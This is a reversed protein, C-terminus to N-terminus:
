WTGQEKSKELIEPASATVEQPKILSLEEVSLQLPGEIIETSLVVDDTLSEKVYKLHTSTESISETGEETIEEFATKTHPFEEVDLVVEDTGTEEVSPIELELSLIEKEELEHKEIITTEEETEPQIDYETEEKSVETPIIFIDMKEKHKDDKQIPIKFEVKEKDTEKRVPVTEKVDLKEKQLTIDTETGKLKEMEPLQFDEELKIEESITTKLHENETIEMETVPIEELSSEVTVTLDTKPVRIKVDIQLSDASTVSPKEHEKILNIVKETSPVKEQDIIIEKSTEKEWIDEKELITLETREKPLDLDIIATEKHEEKEAVILEKDHTPMGIDIDVKVAKTDEKHPVSLDMDSKYINEHPQLILDKESKVPIEDETAPVEKLGEKRLETQNEVTAELPTMEKLTIESPVEEKPLQTEEEVAVESPVVKMAIQTETEIAFSVESPMEKKPLQMKVETTVKSPVDEKTLQTDVDFAAEFPIEEKPLEEKVDVTIELPMEEKSIPTKSDVTIELPINEKPMQGEEVSVDFPVAQKRLETDIDVGIESTKEEKAMETDIEVPKEFPMNAKIKSPIKLEPLETVIPVEASVKEMKAEEITIESTVQKPLLEESTIKSPLKAIIEPKREDSPVQEKFLEQEDLSVDFLEEKEKILTQEHLVIEENEILLKDKAPKSVDVEVSSLFQLKEKEEVEIDTDVFDFQDEIHKPVNENVETSVSLENEEITSDKEKELLDLIQKDESKVEKEITEEGLVKILDKLSEKEETVDKAPVYISEEKLEVSEALVTEEEAEHPYEIFYEQDESKVQEKIPIIREKEYSREEETVVKPQEPSKEHIDIEIVEYSSELAFDEQLPIFRPADVLDSTVQIDKKPRIDKENLKIEIDIMGPKEEIEIEESYSVGADEKDETIITITGRRKQPIEIIEEESEDEEPYKVGYGEEELSEESFDSEESESEIEEDKKVFVETWDERPVVLIEEEVLTETLCESVIEEIGMVDPQLEKPIYKAEEDVITEETVLDTMEEAAWFKDAEKKSPTEPIEKLKDVLEVENAQLITQQPVAQELPSEEQTDKQIEQPFEDGEEPPMEVHHLLEDLQPKIEIDVAQVEPKPTEKVTLEEGSEKALDTSVEEILQTAGRADVSERYSTETVGLDFPILETRKEKIEITDRFLAIIEPVPAAIDFEPSTLDPKELETEIIQMEEKITDEAQQPLEKEEVLIEVSEPLKEAETLTEIDLEEMSVVTIQPALIVTPHEEPIQKSDPSGEVLETAGRIDFAEKYVAELTDIEPRIEGLEITDRYLTIVEPVPAALCSEEPLEPYEEFTFTSVEKYDIVDTTEKEHVTVSFTPSEPTEDLDIKEHLSVKEREETSEPIEPHEEKIEEPIVIGEAMPIIELELEEQYKKTDLDKPLIDLETKGLTKGPIDLDKEKPEIQIKASEVITRPIEKPEIQLDVKEILKDPIEVSKDKEEDEIQVDLKTKEPTDVVKTKTGIDIKLKGDSSVLDATEASEIKITEEFISEVAPQQKIDITEDIDIKEHVSVESKEPIEPLEPYEEFTFTSVEKDDIVDAKEKERVTVSFTPSEPTEDLDIKEHLSVKEREETSEPIEPHEEKIKEPIEIGEETPIIEFELKEQCKGSDLDKPLIDLETKGSTKALIDLDKVKPEIQIKASEVITRPVEKPERQLDVKEILKDPIEVNKDKEEDEIPVELKTKEPTDVVKTKTDIDIKLKGDSSVLDTTEVSEIKMTEEFVSEVAPQQKIDTTEEIDIKEHVTVESKEPIEPLEPYEEFTFTSVEKDDIVDTTEKERVTVSFTPSEPTEDLDIKEHLSVKEREETSEPIEPHEEVTVTSKEHDDIVDYTEKELVSVSFAPSEPTEEIGIKEHQPFKEKEERTVPIDIDRDEPIIDLELQENYKGTDMENPSIEIEDKEIIKEPIESDEDKPIIELELKERYKETDMDKPLNKIETKQSTKELIDLDKEKPEIQIEASETITRTVDKPEIHLDVKETPKKTIEENKDKEIDAIHVELKTKEPADLIKEKTETDIKLQDDKTKESVKKDSEPIEVDSQEIRPRVVLSLQEEPVEMADQIEGLVERAEGTDVSEKIVTETLSIKPMGDEMEFTGKYLTIVEPVPAALDYEQTVLDTIKASEIEMREESISEVPPQQKVDTTEEIDIKEHVSVESKEPIEPLEPYEECSFTSVEKDDIVDTTEKERVTISFTPSEPTQDLDIKEHLSVKEREKTSEPIEPHEVKIEEPIVIGEAMPIIGLELEEQYKKTDLDKPLIELETKGSTKAPIDLDKEKPEIQIEASEVTTRPIEKPEIQLDVKEILKDPIEVRKVKEEDVIEVDLKTKEPTDVVKTKTDIDTKLKDDSSVLDTTKASEIDLTEESISEVPPQQVDTTEELDIKEHVSVETKEPIEPLEPYEEFTFTSVEKDDIVDTTEKERVTVSFTPSEPTEDLDIKEHLSVKEREETSEPIEPHEEKVKKPIEIGKETPIIEFELKEQYKETDLDKPLIEIETKRSTKESIDLDKEKPEIQIEASEAITRTVEKSEIHLDVKETPKKPIEESKDKEIDAIHVELKTKEPADVVEAKTETDIKLQDDKTKKPAKEESKPIEVDSQEIDPRVVFSLQEEPVEMADQVEGLVERAEGTHVAKKFVTETQSIKPIGEEMEFTDKYLIIVEPVPAALDYEQTVLDTIKASEIEIPEKSISEVLPQQQADTREEIDIKEHVSVESKEPIEPLEPYEEFTFTSVEEDDIVDTTEKERVTVSFVPSEPTEDLDIKEHLSVKEREETSKPIEPHEEKVKKPIEIGEETPIIEFELKEQYKETDLDKPLIEIETIRSNKESIDLDMEKSEIQIEASEAITRTVEKREIHLDVKETPKKPIDESKDKEIDAIHVELKTKAPADVVKSKKETDIKLQDDKTKEPVKEESKPIEVDSQETHPRVVFSLQEEPVEMADQVEGLVERAEGTDVPEKFVTETQSIKPIGEEKEFTDKYLTIVEPVPAALDHEQTVLDTIEASEIEIPEESISEVPQQQQVDTTEEIDIKEHVSVESKEPIEPLEPYEEFTFTSVEKDDIVDTTEKERVTISFTPSEPTEDLDIKEHLSVKEREETSEPIELHEKKVKKPIEIGEETPIIEFELKEQYKETDLDKPLIEIETKRSTKESIDLDKEKPEIQIKASEAVTRTVAKPEIHLDVKETPKKPIEESKDKEIDAIHVELKTKEPADVVKEKTETDIKLQDDKTKEPVKEDSKPIEFDSQETHPRVVLSLQEEPVEMADQVEGLVERAEGTDVAEKFVTETQILKSIREEMEFTDKYLTIVEPVPAALDYEQTVLDTIEASEIEVPEESISEVPPLQQVDATEEIDIKEHVSVESKEPIEPLEPYEEFTFTSVEKDDIVDATEKERVTVSFAPSEPTEDLDIKEHLSVKEREKTTEPIEPHEEKVKKPIEIGEETPIIEFELKEQCKETDLNKPLIEIETKRSAKESTDLDKQKPEIQIEASEAITRTVEKPEIQLDVKETPMKPIMESKDKEIDAIHVELKTKEPAGVVMEKTETDIKLQDDKTKEPVKEDSKPIEVESQEIHPRVVFSLQEEPVEMADQVEGLVERAEGTDVANKFVTETQSIKPIGEEMEFTDKYLIIVEPVPAALDYEQTVLDTIEASEIEIPEKSISEVPPQQQVDTREEIDIKEHVSVESKEPIEPLEPYEEFTFTSVEKDDIVDATEKERVTVSFAPSEPTEDLDIKEHLSVKEREKTTEPIEPHEEKVKKPIEIGEETPIIEFELKEQCKETDLNKPLIEIETKRSAKESTDLDKQKPEIQIEASEAITRTVEKPEIQLDVKETPMKPIMESKDKEIDAIHVELKTKEPAGVVMEKTETDIKLQDDKTKEPVKEDSKPIEVESQEIHPRVVFSLQEEPVEMADQVEGLVERAEGTDVANKFVTETQSIKPIGEEMEFTDKYLIIVEPVPAALDYEQTVLDTIEASEIEIPEKSISEVPPQQQVDTREEIDIKEHVSVESKEPIEPLEPYEEFTFTSVEEDDIVDTTEKERVTVSFTPSEPTEDLDIKEHLSVKEREKTSEPIEPHEEKIKKPIEIGEETPIIEFELKEQYKKTDLDKPLIEIETKRLTKESIDLDKEKPEIQIEASEAITRTVEKPEIHLDVKETPKKPIEESKDKEIDEIHVELKTKEPAGVVKEKTETDIELQDDLDYEQTVLDTIEASESEVPEESISEVPPQQQVDTTEEIDIKEHVSVETKEPIEPLEPYEEFTFTSVEKDDIVDATEKERVTVSFAPSEPTEDLDIKEHLSVKEREETSEPIEPHEEKVKKPIEIGEETPIIEFELKEQYKETDLDKPLIEIETKRSTKEPTDLDKEKPEIQIEASEAITRTVEKPEIHLDVKETPKKPIDEGKDKEIDAIHVEFKTKEPADVVKEKTETDIKLQDDKTKEPVKEDSKPIEVDSQEIHPRVVFSLQEEPVEMADQVEGLVERAEGTDVPEKLVTETQSLKPIGEEMEFTDKYLTIVEPVPAALDYEQTVLDTIEASEIEIPEESISEVPLQQQVDTTEEIDIKEHVSVESKEPIEPLEPYEEFTFTSVEEDDIVDTTEKERVTVSFTPSEPTEDLDIKEHLSVKEREETSEPIEPHEEKIKKPIEIGEETPIIEFELKEQYKKTDLDKPLIEIETKRLTKESIDLDKEKPEIQIEASEAITRTVEKPEIHLDVKETPKKPIEESKDKEIDEIHVELKTKEPAGVVKEKTETDIELQDDLDYEQTVLDTIEASESEVPEESISEVPPQQQVDTTEEIDIKEHVSVESKEPIEPLEPYEEFTFTSVEEDDIVDTMEKERVTVSFTPSEPTEDLDIKEHLSVKEREATSEPIEPHEEKIKKPIEIGEETPIIEFELKEQYKKTDLDKPLIEIETKRLTKESIDLDKEKPEIQIEASEAITRTVEKPEIHLDVKETPKKPIEESKDKEIDAIRVELKTKEPAGVVKEKTETDIKLQDDLDYEQTVLDTIETSESEVPEESISESPPQQQVDTTEEIDIKEHVSVESKEPIEPLEPYEEFTFTSVEKDDIVDSTEKERVTVSFTPSEPLEGLDIKEHLSVIEREVTSEPIEPIEPHEEMTVTLEEHDDIADYTEKELVSVSFAPSEPIEDIDIKEHLSVKEKEETIEPIEIDKDKPIVELYARELFTKSDLGKPLVELDTKDTTKEPKIQMEVREEMTRPIEKPKIQLDTKDILKDPIEAVKEKESTIGGVKIKTEEPAGLDKGKTKTIITVQYAPVELGKDTDPKEKLDAIQKDQDPTEADTVDSIEMMVEPLETKDATIDLDIIMDEPTLDEKQDLIKEDTEVEASIEPVFEKEKVKIDTMEVETIPTDIESVPAIIEKTKEKDAIMESQDILKIDIKPKSLKERSIM